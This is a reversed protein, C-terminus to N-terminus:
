ILVGLPRGELWSYSQSVSAQIAASYSPVMSRDEFAEYEPPIDEEKPQNMFEPNEASIPLSTSCPSEPTAHNFHDNYHPLPSEEETAIGLEHFISQYAEMPQPLDFILPFFLNIQKSQSFTMSLWFNTTFSVASTHGDPNQLAISIELKHQIQVITTQASLLCDRTSSPLQLVRSFLYWIGDQSKDMNEWADPNFGDAVIIRSRSAPLPKKVTHTEVVKSTVSSLTLGKLLPVFRFDIPIKSGM